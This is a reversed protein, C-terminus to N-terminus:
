TWPQAYTRSELIEGGLFFHILFRQIKLTKHFFLIRVYKENTIRSFYVGLGDLGAYKELFVRGRWPSWTIERSIRRELGLFVIYFMQKKLSKSDSSPPRSRTARLVALVGEAFSNPSCFGLVFVSRKSCPLPGGGKRDADVYFLCFM